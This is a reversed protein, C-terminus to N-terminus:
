FDGIANGDTPDLLNKLSGRDIARKMFSWYLLMNPSLRNYERLTSAWPISVTHKTFLIIGCGVAQNEKLLDVMYKFFESWVHNKM